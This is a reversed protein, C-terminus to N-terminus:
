PRCSTARSCQRYERWSHHGNVAHLCLSLRGRRQGRRCGTFDCKVSTVGLDPERQFRRRAWSISSRQRAMPPGFGIAGVGRLGARCEGRLRSALQSHQRGAPRFHQRPTGSPFAPLSGLGELM